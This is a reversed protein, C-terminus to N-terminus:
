GARADEGEDENCLQSLSVHFSIPDMAGRGKRGGERRGERNEVKWQGVVM